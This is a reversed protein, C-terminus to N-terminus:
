LFTGSKNKLYNASCLEWHSHGPFTAEIRKEFKGSMERSATFVEDEKCAATSM